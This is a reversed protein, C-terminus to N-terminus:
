TWLYMSGQLFGVMFSGVQTGNCFWVTQITPILIRAFVYIKRKYVNKFHLFWTNTMHLCQLYVVTKTFATKRRLFFFPFELGSPPFFFIWAKAHATDRALVLFAREKLGKQLVKIWGKLGLVSAVEEKFATPWKKLVFGASGSCQSIFPEEGSIGLHGTYVQCRICIGTQMEGQPSSGICPWTQNRVSDTALYSAFSFPEM